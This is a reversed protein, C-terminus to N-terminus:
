VFESRGVSVWTKLDHFRTGLIEIHSSDLVLLGQGDNAPNEDVSGFIKCDLVAIHDSKDIWFVTVWDPEGADLVHRVSINEFTIYSSNKVQLSDFTAPALADQSRIM